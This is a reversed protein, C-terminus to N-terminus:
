AIDFFGKVAEGTKRGTEKVRSGAARLAADTEPLVGGIAGAVPAFIDAFRHPWNSRARSTKTPIASISRSNM